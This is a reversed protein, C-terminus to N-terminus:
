PRPRHKRSNGTCPFAGFVKTTVGPLVTYIVIVIVQIYKGIMTTTDADEKVFYRVHFWGTLAILSLMFLPLLSNFIM